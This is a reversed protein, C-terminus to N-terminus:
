VSTEVINYVINNLVYLSDSSAGAALTHIMFPGNSGPNGGKDHILNNRIINNNNTGRLLIGKNSNETDLDNFDIDIFEITFDDINVDIIGNNHGSGSSPKVVVQTDGAGTTGGHREGDYATLTVSSLSQKESFYVRADSTFTGDAHCEGILDDSAGWYLNSTDDVM